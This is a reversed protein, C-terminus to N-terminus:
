IKIMGLSHVKGNRQGLWCGIFETGVIIYILGPGNYTACRLMNDLDSWDTGSPCPKPEPHSHWLGLLTGRGDTKKHWYDAKVQHGDGRYFSHRRRKDGWCPTTIVEALLGDTEIDTFGLILGGAERAFMNIQCWSSLSEILPVSFSGRIENTIKWVWNGNSLQQLM